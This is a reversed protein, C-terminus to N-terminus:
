QSVRLSFTGGRRNTSLTPCSPSISLCTPYSNQTQMPDKASSAPKLVEGVKEGERERERERECLDYGSVCSPLDGVCSFELCTKQFDRLIFAM